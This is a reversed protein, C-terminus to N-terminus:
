KVPYVSCQQTLPTMTENGELKTIQPDFHVCILKLVRVPEQMVWVFSLM